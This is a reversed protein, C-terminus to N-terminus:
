KELVVRVKIGIAMIKVKDTFTLPKSDDTYSTLVSNITFNEANAPNYNVFPTHNGKAINNLGYDFYAGTYLSHKEDIRWKMGAEFALMTSVGLDITGNNKRGTFEGYGAFTQTKAYNGYKPYYGYNTLAASKSKYKGNLPIGFKLGGNVYFPEMQFQAMVPINLFIAKETENYGSLTTHLDFLDNESDYLKSTIIKENNLKSKANYFGLGIGTHIGWYERFVKGVSTIHEKYRFWTYGAGFDGGFGGSRDGSSLQYSLTSLGGGAHVSFEHKTQASLNLGSLAAVLIAITIILRKMRYYNIKLPQISSAHNKNDHAKTNKTFIM